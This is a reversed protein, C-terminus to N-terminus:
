LDVFRAPLLMTILMTKEMGKKPAWLWGARLLHRGQMVSSPHVMSSCVQLKDRPCSSQIGLPYPQQQELDGRM